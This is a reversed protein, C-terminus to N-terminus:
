ADGQDLKAKLKWFEIEIAQKAGLLRHLSLQTLAILLLAGYALYAVADNQKNAHLYYTNWILYATMAAGAGSAGCFALFKLGDPKLCFRAIARVWLAFEGNM